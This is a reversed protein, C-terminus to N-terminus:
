VITPEPLSPLVSGLRLGRHAVIGAGLVTMALFPALDDRAADAPIPQGTLDLYLARSVDMGGEGVFLRSAGGLRPNVDLLKYQGDRADYRYGCDLIGRYGLDRMFRRTLEDVTANHVTIGLSTMGTDPPAQRIKRGIAAFRCESREDFYGNFMWVSEPGGPIYQQLMLNPQEPDELRDYADFLTAADEAIVTRVDGRQDSRAGEIAKVVVPFATQAAFQEVDARSQPFETDPTPIGHRRCLEDMGRKDYLARALGDPQRPFTFAEALADQHDAVVMNSADDSLVLIPRGGVRRAVGLLFDVTDAAPHQKADWAFVERLYRSRTIASDARDHVAYVPVGLRGLSRVLGLNIKMVVVPTAPPGTM